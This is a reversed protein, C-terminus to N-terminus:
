RCVQCQEHTAEWRNGNEYFSGEYVCKQRMNEVLEEDGIEEGLDRLYGPIIELDNRAYRPLCVQPASVSVLAGQFLSEHNANTLTTTLTLRYYHPHKINVKVQFPTEVTNTLLFAADGSDLRAMMLKHINDAHGSCRPGACSQLHRKTSPFLPRAKLNSPRQIPYDELELSPQANHLSDSGELRVTYHLRCTQDLSAWALGIVPSSDSRIMVASGGCEAPGALHTLIRGRLAPPDSGTTLSLYLNEKFLEDVQGATM